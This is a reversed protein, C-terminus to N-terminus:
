SHQSKVFFTCKVYTHLIIVRSKYELIMEKSSKMFCIGRTRSSHKGQVQPHPIKSQIIVHQLIYAPRHMKAERSYDNQHVIVKVM